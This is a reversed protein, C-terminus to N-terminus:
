TWYQIWFSRMTKLTPEIDEIGVATLRNEKASTWIVGDFQCPTNKLFNKVIALAIATKGVGGAGTITVVRHLDGEIIKSIKRVDEIRGVFGGESDYDPIPVNNPIETLIKSTFTVPVSVIFKEPTDDFARLFQLFENDEGVMANAIERTKEHLEEIDNSTFISKSHAIRCRLPYLEDMTSVFEEQSLIHSEFFYRYLGKYTSVEKLDPFDTEELFEFPHEINLSPKKGYVKEIIGKPVGDKFNGFLLLINNALHQRLNEEFRSIITYCVDRKNFGSDMTTREQIELLLECELIKIM